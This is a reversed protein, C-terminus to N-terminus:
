AQRPLRRKWGKGELDPSPPFKLRSCPPIRPLSSVVPTQFVGNKLESCHVDLSGYGNGPEAAFYLNGMADTSVQHHIQPVQNVPPPLPQPDGWLEGKRQVMWIRETDVKGGPELPRASIFFLKKGDPSVFPVDDYPGVSFSALRAATWRGNELRSMLIARRPKSGFNLVAWYAEKGDPSFAVTGHIRYLPQLIARGFPEATPGPPQQGFYREHQAAPLTGTLATAVVLLLGIGPRIRTHRMAIHCPPKRMWTLLLSSPRVTKTAAASALSRPAMTVVAVGIAM